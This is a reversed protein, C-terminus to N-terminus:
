GPSGTGEISVCRDRSAASGLLPLLLSRFLSPHLLDSGWAALAGVALALLTWM